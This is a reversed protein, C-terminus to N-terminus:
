KQFLFFTVATRRLRLYVGSPLPVQRPLLTCDRRIRTLWGLLGVGLALDQALRPGQLRAASFLGQSSTFTKWQDSPPSPPHARPLGTSHTDPSLINDLTHAPLMQVQSCLVYPLSLHGGARLRVDRCMVEGEALCWCLWFIFTTKAVSCLGRGSSCLKGLPLPYESEETTM